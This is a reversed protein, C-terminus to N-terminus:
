ISYSYAATRSALFRPWQEALSVTHHGRPDAQDWAIYEKLNSTRIKLVNVYFSTNVTNLQSSPRARKFM